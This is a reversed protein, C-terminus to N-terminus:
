PARATIYLKRPHSAIWLGRAFAARRNDDAALIFICQAPDRLPAVSPARNEQRRRLELILEGFQARFAGRGAAIEIPHVDRDHPALHAALAGVHLGREALVSGGRRM